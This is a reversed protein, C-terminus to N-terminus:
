HENDVFDENLLNGDLEKYDGGDYWLNGFPNDKAKVLKLPMIEDNEYANTEEKEEQEKYLTNITSQAITKAVIRSDLKDHQRSPYPM